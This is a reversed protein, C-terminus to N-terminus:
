SALLSILAYEVEFACVASTVCRCRYIVKANPDVVSQSDTQFYLFVVPHESQLLRLEDISSIETYPPELARELFTEIATFARVGKYDQRFEGDYFRITPYRVNFSHLLPILFSAM